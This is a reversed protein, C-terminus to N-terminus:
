ELLRGLMQRVKRDVDGSANAQLRYAIIRILLHKPLHAPAIKAFVNRWAVRLGDLDLDALREIELELSVRSGALAPADARAPKQWKM